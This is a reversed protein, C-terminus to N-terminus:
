IKYKKIRENQYKRIDLNENNKFLLIMKNFMQITIDCDKLADHYGSMDIGFEPAWKSMSSSILGFDRSSTGILELKQKYINETEALKQYIPIVYLQLLMKTDLVPYKFYQNYRGYLMELDFSANQIIFLPNKFKNVWDFFSKLVFQEDLYKKGKIKDGYHNFSLVRRRSWNGKPEDLVKKIEPTLKIKQNFLSIRQNKHINYAIAAIQTLQHKKPGGIGTTETDLFIWTNNKFSDIFEIIEKISKYWIKNEFTKIYKM